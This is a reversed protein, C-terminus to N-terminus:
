EKHQEHTKWAEGRVIRNIMIPIVGFQKALQPGMGWKYVSRIYDVQEQTLKKNPNLEGPQSCGPYRARGKKRMDDNNDKATGLFLHDPNVCSPNDCKHLVWLNDPIPGNREVWAARHAKREGNKRQWGYGNKDKAGEYINCLTQM